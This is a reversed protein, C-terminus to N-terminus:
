LVRGGKEACEPGLGRQVSQPNTIRRRCRACRHTTEAYFQAARDAFETDRLKYLALVVLEAVRDGSWAQQVILQGKEGIRVVLRPRNHVFAYVHPPDVNLILADAGVLARDREHKLPLAYYM